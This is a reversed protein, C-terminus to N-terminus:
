KRCPYQKRMVDRIVMVVAQSKYRDETPTKFVDIFVLGLKHAESSFEDITYTKSPCVQPDVLFEAHINGMIYAVAGQQDKYTGNLDINADGVTYIPGAHASISLALAAILTALRKM